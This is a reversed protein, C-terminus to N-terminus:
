DKKGGKTGRLCANWRIYEPLIGNVGNIGERLRRPRDDKDEEMPVAELNGANGNITPERIAGESESLKVQNFVPRGARYPIVTIFQEEPIECSPVVNIQEPAEENLDPVTPLKLSRVIQAVAEEEKDITPPAEPVKAVVPSALVEAAPPALAEIVIPSVISPPIREKLLTAVGRGKNNQIWSFIIRLHSGLLMCKAGRAQMLENHFHKHFHKAWNVSKGIVERTERVMELPVTTKAVQIYLAGRM